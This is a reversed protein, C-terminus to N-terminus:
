PSGGRLIIDGLEALRAEEPAGESVGRKLLDEDSPSRRTTHIPIVRSVMTEVAGLRKDVVGVLQSMIDYESRATGETTMRGILARLGQV